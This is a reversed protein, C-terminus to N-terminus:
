RRGGELVRLLDRLIDAAGAVLQAREAETMAELDTPM